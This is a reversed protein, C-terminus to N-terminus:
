TVIHRLWIAAADEYIFGFNLRKIVQELDTGSPPLDCRLGFYDPKLSCMLADETTRIDGDHSLVKQRPEGVKAQCERLM